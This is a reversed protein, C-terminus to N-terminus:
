SAAGPNAHVHHVSVLPALSSRRLVCLHSQLRRLEHPSVPADGAAFEWGGGGVQGEGVMMMEREEGAEARVTDEWANDAEFAAIAKDVDWENDKPSPRRPPLTLTPPRRRCFRDCARLKAGRPRAPLTPALVPPCFCGSPRM